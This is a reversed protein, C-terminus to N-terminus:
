CNEKFTWKMTPKQTPRNIQSPISNGTEVLIKRLKKEAIAYVLLCLCMIVVLTRIRSEKKLFVADAMCLPDNLFCFGREVKGQDKYYNLIEGHSLKMESNPQLLNDVLEKIGLEDCVSKVLGNHELAKTEILEMVLDSCTNISRAMRIAM